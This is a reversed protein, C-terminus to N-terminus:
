TIQCVIPNSSRDRSEFGVEIVMLSRACLEKTGLKSYMKNKETLPVQDGHPPHDAHERVQPSPDIVRVLSHISGFNPPKGHWPESM